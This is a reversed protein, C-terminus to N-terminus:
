ENRLARLLEGRLALGGALWIWVLGSVLLAALTLGLSQYPVQSASARLAPLVAVLAAGVGCALGLLLLGGHEILILRRLQIRTFGVARLLALESRRELANRLVVVGLGVSGLLLGLGGLAQFITLYTNEVQQFLALREAAPQLELGYDRLGQTLADALGKAGPAPPDILFVRQGSESRFQAVFNKEAIVLSGQLVSNALMGVIRLPFTRGREDTYSLTEGVKRGLAWRVTAEDGIAPVAGDAQPANLLLWPNGAAADGSSGLFTFAGREALERPDVALLRPAQARNLNLCSADDGERMRLPVVRLNELGAKPLGLNERSAPSNLDAHLPLTSEGFFAFGGTGSSRQAATAGPDHRNAGVAIVLFSGCALLGITTLSRGRRRAVNQLALATASRTGTRGPGALAAILVSCTALGAILLMAGAGFFDAASHDGLFGRGLFVAALL